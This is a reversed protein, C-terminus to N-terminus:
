LGVNKLKLRKDSYILKSVKHSIIEKLADASSGALWGFMRSSANLLCNPLVNIKIDMLFLFLSLITKPCVVIITDATSLDGNIACRQNRGSLYLKFCSSFM